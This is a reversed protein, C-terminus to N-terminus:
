GALLTKVAPNETAHHLLYDEVATITTLGSLEDDAFEIEFAEELAMMLEICDFSDAGLDDVFRAACSIHEEPVDLVARVIKMLFVSLHSMPSGVRSVKVVSLFQRNPKEGLAFEVTDV